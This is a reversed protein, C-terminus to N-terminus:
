HSCVHRQSPEAELSSKAPKGWVEQQRQLVLVRPWPTESGPLRGPSAPGGRYVALAGSASACPQSTAHPCYKQHLMDFRAEVERRHALRLSQMARARSMNKVPSILWTLALLRNERDPSSMASSGLSAYKWPAAQPEKWSPVLHRAQPEHVKLPAKKSQFGEWHGPLALLDEPEQTAGAERAPQARNPRREGPGRHAHSDRRCCARSMRGKQRPRRRGSWNQVVFTRTAITCSPKARLLRTMSHLMGEYLDSITVDGAEEFSPSGAGPSVPSDGRPVVALDTSPNCPRLSLAPLVPGSPSKPSIDGFGGHAPSALSQLLPVQTDGRGRGDAHESGWDGQLLVDVQTLYKRRLDNKLPSPPVAPMLSMALAESHDLVATVDPSRSDEDTARKPDDVWSGSTEPSGQAHGGLRHQVLAGGWLRRGEPTEYTLTTMEVLPADEFPQNYKEILQQM